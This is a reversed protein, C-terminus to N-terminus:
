SCCEDESKYLLLDKELFADPYTNSMVCYPEGRDNRTPWWHTPKRLRSNAKGTGHNRLSAATPTVLLLLPLHAMAQRRLNLTVAFRKRDHNCNM